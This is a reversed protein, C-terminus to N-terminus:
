MRVLKELQQRALRERKAAERGLRIAEARAERPSMDAEPRRIACESDDAQM